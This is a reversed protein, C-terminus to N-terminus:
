TNSCFSKELTFVSFNSTNTSSRSRIAFVLNATERVPSLRPVLLYKRQSTSVVLQFGPHFLTSIRQKTKPALSEAKASPSSSITRRSLRRTVPLRSAPSGEFGEFGLVGSSGLLGVSFSDDAAPSGVPM